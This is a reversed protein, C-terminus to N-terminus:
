MIAAVDTRHIIGYHNYSSIDKEFHLTVECIHKHSHVSVCVCKLM